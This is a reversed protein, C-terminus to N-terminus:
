ALGVYEMFKQRNIRWVDRLKVAPLEGGTCMRVITRVSVGAILAAEKPSMLLAEQTNEQTSTIPHEKGSM